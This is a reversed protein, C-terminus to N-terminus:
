KLNPLLGEPVPHSSGAKRCAQETQRTIKLPVVGAWVDFELDEDGPPASRIKASAEIIDFAIIKTAKLEIDSLPRVKDWRDKAYKDIFAKLCTRKEDGDVVRGRAYIMVSRFNVSHAWASRAFVAGDILSVVISAEAGSELALISAGKASGHIYLTEGIRWHSSPINMVGKDPTMVAVHCILAEDLIAHVTARDFHGRKHARKLTTRPTKEYDNM